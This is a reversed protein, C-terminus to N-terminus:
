AAYVVAHHPEDFGRAFDRDKAFMGVIRVAVGDVILAPQDCALMERAPHGAGLNVARDGDNRFLPVTLAQIRRVVGDHFRVVRDPEGVGGVADVGVIFAIASVLLDIAAM